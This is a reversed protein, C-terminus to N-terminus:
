REFDNDIEKLIEILENMQKDFSDMFVEADTNREIEKASIWHGIRLLIHDQLRFIDSISDPIKENYRRNLEIKLSNLKEKIENLGSEALPHNNFIGRYILQTPYNLNDIIEKLKM